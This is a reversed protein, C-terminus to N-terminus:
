SGFLAQHLRKDRGYIDPRFNLTGDEGSWATSYTVHIPLPEALDVRTNRESAIVAHIRARDWGSDASVLRVALDLPRELRICGSSFARAAHDFLDRAPTDHLYVDFENPFMFKVRGLANYRGPRQRLTYPFTRKTYRSWDITSPDMLKDQLFVEFDHDAIFGPDKKIKPLEDEVALKFPVTWYPNFELYRIRDSFVPTQRYPQGVVVAMREVVAGAEVLTLEFGAINVVIYRNGLDAPLWRWREMNLIIQEIRETVPVNMAALTNNGVIGDVELGHREQFRKVAIELAPDYFDADGGVITIDGTIKLRARVQGIRPDRMGPKLTGGPPVEPWGGASAIKRYESLHERLAHYEPNHPAWAALCAGLDSDAAMASLLAAGDITRTRAFLEPDIKHPNLRGVKLDSAYALLAASFALENEARAAADANDASQLRSVLDSLPYHAPNLGDQEARALHEIMATKRPVDSWLAAGDDDGYYQTLASRFEDALPPLPADGELLGVIIRSLDQSTDPSVASPSAPDGAGGAPKAALEPTATPKQEAAGLPAAAATESETQTSETETSEAQPAQAPTAAWKDLALQDPAVAWILVTVLVALGAFSFMLASSSLRKKM